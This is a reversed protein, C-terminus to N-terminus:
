PLATVVRDAKIGVRDGRWGMRTATGDPYRVKVELVKPAKGLGFHVRPDESSLYSSGAHVEQVLKRGGPLTVTVVAGPAFQPLKVELWHGTGGTSRLLMLKGGVTNVALDMHGDNDFDAAAVGRGNVKPLKDAGVLAAADVFGSPVRELVQMPRADKTLNKVPIEGNALVLDLHGDLNLDVWSDGWGTLNTGFATAFSPQANTFRDGRSGFAAHGQGRSNSVFVDQRGDSNFDGEAIGMGANRDALGMSRAREVFRFGLGGALENVYYRNPDLDNAVYLDLRGDGNLDTFVAGLSHDFPARDLGVQRGVERFHARGDPSNGENLFLLDRVGLHNTPFGASSGPISGNAETYGAVFLDPRGDGNVDGVAAGTHWGFSAVGSSRAGETFMGNGNNWLLKDDSATSVYVDTDGDGNLDAAVCGQGRVALGAGSADTVNVFRGGVNHFLASRPLGGEADYRGLDSEAYNNVVFLDLKGDNDYDLWCLGGGMMAPTDPTVGFRFAGQQFDLGVQAAVDTLRVDAFLRAAERKTAASVTTVSRKVPLRVRAILWRVSDKQLELTQRFDTQAERRAVKPPRGTYTTLQQTGELATVAIAAGQGHGTELWMRIRDLRYATVSIPKGAAARLLQRLQPLRDFTAADELAKRDRRSLAETQIRLDTVLDGAIARALKSDLKTQVGRSPLITIRPLRGTGALPPSTTDPRARIGAAAVAGTYAVAAAAGLAVLKRRDLRVAPLLALLPRAATVIALAGLVAVKAWFETKTPAILLASLLGVSVAYVARATTSKPTTKPDTIMFFLFVLIEPSSVLVWWFYPGTIPGVHWRATMAHGTAALLGTGAAFALWFAVAIVLLHIRSLIALGGAVIIVLALGMWTSMPGWWFDLPEARSEGLALFCLVLGINSPNFIHGGGPRPAAGAFGAGGPRSVPEGGALRLRIVYKSLLSVAATGVFIWWGRLSWWDGHETGPVRLIFAVGNGTILASAPWMLVHQRRFAIGVELLACTGLSLLIQAISVRFDFAAQGLVQLTIIVSALHLRPDRVTPLLVPYPTGRITLIRGGPAALAPASM